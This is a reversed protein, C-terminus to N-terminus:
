LRAGWNWLETKRFWQRTVMQEKWNHKRWTKFWTQFCDYQVKRSRGCSEWNLIGKRELFLEARTARGFPGVKSWKGPRNIFLSSNTSWNRNDFVAQRKGSKKMGMCLRSLPQCLKEDLFINPFIFCISSPLLVLLLRLRKPGHALVSSFLTSVSQPITDVLQSKSCKVDLSNPAAYSPITLGVRVNCYLLFETGFVWFIQEDANSWGPYFIYRDLFLWDDDVVLSIM